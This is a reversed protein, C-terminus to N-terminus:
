KADTDSAMCNLWMHALLDMGPLWYPSQSADKRRGRVTQTDRTVDWENLGILWSIIM